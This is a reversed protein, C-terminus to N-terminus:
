STFPAINNTIGRTNEGKHEEVLDFFVLKASVKRRKGKM